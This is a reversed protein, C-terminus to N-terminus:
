KSEKTIHVWLIRKLEEIEKKLANIENELIGHRQFLGRRMNGVKTSLDHVDDKLAQIDPNGSEWFTMQRPILTISEFEEALM